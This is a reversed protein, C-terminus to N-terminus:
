GHSLDTRPVTMAAIMGMIILTTLLEIMSFGRRRSM